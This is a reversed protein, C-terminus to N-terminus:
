CFSGMTGGRAGPDNITQIDSRYAANHKAGSYKLFHLFQYDIHDKGRLVGHSKGLPICRSPTERCVLATGSGATM